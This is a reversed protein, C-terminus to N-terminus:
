KPSEAAFLRNGVPDLFLLRDHRNDYIVNCCGGIGSTVPERAARFRPLDLTPDIFYAGLETALVVYRGNKSIATPHGHGVGHYDSIRDDVGVVHAARVSGDEARLTWLKYEWTLVYVATGDPSFAAVLPTEGTLEQRWLLTLTRGDLLEVGGDFDALAVQDRTPSVAFTSGNAIDRRALVTVSEPDIRLIGEWPGAFITGEPGLELRPHLVDGVPLSDMRPPEITLDIAGLYDGLGVYLTSGDDSVVLGSRSPGHISPNTDTNRLDISWLESGTDLNTARLFGQFADTTYLRRGDSSLAIGDSGLQINGEVVPVLDPVADPDNVALRRKLHAERGAQRLTVDITHFGPDNFRYPMGVGLGLAGLEDPRGDEDLDVAYEIGTAGEAARIELWGELTADAFDLSSNISVLNDPLPSPAPGAPESGDCALSGSLLTGPLIVTLVRIPFLGM